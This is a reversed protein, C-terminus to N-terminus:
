RTRPVPAPRQSETEQSSVEATASMPSTPSKDSCGFAAGLGAAVVLAIARRMSFRRRWSLFASSYSISAYGTDAARRAEKRKSDFTKPMVRDGVSDAG